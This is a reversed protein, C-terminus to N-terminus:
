AEWAGGGTIAMRRRAEKHQRLIEPNAAFFARNVTRMASVLDRWPSMQAADFEEDLRRGDVCCAAHYAAMPDIPPPPLVPPASLGSLVVISM